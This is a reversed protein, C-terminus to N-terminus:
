EWNLNKEYGLEILAPGFVQKAKAVQEKTFEARWGGVKGSRFNTSVAWPLVRSKDINKKMEGRGKSAEVIEVIKEQPLRIEYFDLMRKFAGVTDAKLEEFSEFHVMGPYLKEMEKWGRIWEVFSAGTHEISHTIANEMGLKQYDVFDSADRPKPFEMLRYVRSLVVDRFDRYTVLVKEVGNRRICDMNSQSPTLHTKFLTNGAKPVYKFASDCINENYAVEFPMPTRRTFVGPIRGLLNKAWTTGGLAMGALFIIRHPYRYFGLHCLGDTFIQRAKYAALAGIAEPNLLAAKGAVIIKDITKPM